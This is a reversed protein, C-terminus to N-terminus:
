FSCCSYCTSLSLRRPALSRLFSAALTGGSSLADLDVGWIVSDGTALWGLAAAVRDIVVGALGVISGILLDAGGAPRAVAGRAGPDVRHARAALAQACVTRARCVVGLHHRLSCPGASPAPSVFVEAGSLTHHAELLQAVLLM